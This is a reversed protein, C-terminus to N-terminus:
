DFLGYNGLVGYFFEDVLELYFFFGFFGLCYNVIVVVVGYWVLNVGDFEIVLGSGIVFVGGYFWVM